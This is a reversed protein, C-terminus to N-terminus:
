ERTTSTYLALEFVHVTNAVPKLTPRWIRAPADSGDCPSTNKAPPWTPLECKFTTSTKLTKGRAIHGEPLTGITLKSPDEEHEAHKGEKEEPLLPKAHERHGAPYKPLSVPSDAQWPQGAPEYPVWNPCVFPLLQKLQGDPVYEEVDPLVDHVDHGPPVNLASTPWVDDVDHM